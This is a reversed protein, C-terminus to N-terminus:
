RSENIVELHRAYMFEILNDSLFQVRHCGRFDLGGIVLGLDKHGDTTRVLDGIKPDPRRDHM